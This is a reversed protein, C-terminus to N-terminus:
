RSERTLAAVRDIADIAEAGSVPRTVAFRDGELLPMVGSAVAVSASTYSLHTPGMDAIKPRAASWKEVRDPSTGLVLLRRVASALDGRTIGARPQFTHNPFPDFIGAETVATIWPGAWHGRADTVVTQRRPAGEVLPELRIGILAALDGRTIRPEEPIEHFESPLKALRAKERVEEIRRTIADSPEIEAAERYMSEAGVYDMRQEFLEGMQVLAASDTPDLEVARRLETMAAQSDGRRREVVGLERHLFASDPAAELARRYAARADDLRGAELHARAAEVLEQTNRFRLVDVRRKVEALSSDVALAAEFAKLAEDERKLALLAQGKGVLAPVYQAATSLAADFDALAKDYDRRALDVYGSGTRAPYLTPSGRMAADFERDAESLDDNQLFRWGADIRAAGSTNALAAPVTPYVFEPHALTAPLPPPMRAACAAVMSAMVIVIALRATV